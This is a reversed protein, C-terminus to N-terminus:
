QEIGEGNQRPDLILLPGLHHGSVGLELLEFVEDLDM